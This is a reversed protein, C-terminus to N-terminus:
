SHIIKKFIICTRNTNKINKVVNHLINVEDKTMIWLVPSPVNTTGDLNKTVWFACKIKTAKLDFRLQITNLEKSTTYQYLSYTINKLIHMRDLLHIM